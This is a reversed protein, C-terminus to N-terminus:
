PAPPAAREWVPPGERWAPSPSALLLGRPGTVYQPKGKLWSYRKMDRRRQCSQKCGRQNVDLGEPNKKLLIIIFFCVCACVCLAPKPQTTLSCLGGLPASKVPVDPPLDLSQRIFIFSSFQQYRSWAPPERGLNNFTHHSRTAGNILTMNPSFTLLITRM